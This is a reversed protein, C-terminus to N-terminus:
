ELVGCVGLVLLVIYTLYIIGWSIPNFVMMWAHDFWRDFVSDHDHM